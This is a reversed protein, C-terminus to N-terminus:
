ADDQRRRKVLYYWVSGAALVTMVIVGLWMAFPMIWQPETVAPYWAMDANTMYDRVGITMTFSRQFNVLFFISAFVYLAVALNSILRPLRSSAIHVVVLFPSTVSIFSALYVHVLDMHSTFAALAESDTMTKTVDSASNLPQAAFAGGVAFM